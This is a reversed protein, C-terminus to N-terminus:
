QSVREQRLMLFFIYLIFVPFYYYFGNLIATIIMAFYFIFLIANNRIEMKNDNYIKIMFAVYVVTALLGYSYFINLFDNHYWIDYDLNKINALHAAIYSKGILLDVLGFNQVEVWWSYWIRFRSLRTFNESTTQILSFYQYFITDESIRLLFDIGLFVSASLLIILGLYVIHKRGLLFLIGALAFAVIVARSGTIICFALSVLVIFLNILKRKKTYSYLFFLALFGFFYSAMHPLRFLGFHYVRIYEIYDLEKNEEWHLQAQKNIISVSDNTNNIEELGINVEEVNNNEDEISAESVLGASSTDLQKFVSQSDISAFTFVFAFASLVLFINIYKNKLASIHNKYYYYFTIFLIIFLLDSVNKKDFGYLMNNILSILIFTGIFLLLQGKEPNKYHVLLLLFPYLVIAMVVFFPFHLFYNIGRDTFFAVMFLMFFVNVLKSTNEDVFSKMLAYINRITKM